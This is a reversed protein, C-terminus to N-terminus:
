RGKSKETKDDIIEYDKGIRFGAGTAANKILKVKNSHNLEIEVEPYKEIDGGLELLNSKQYFKMISVIFSTFVKASDLKESETANNGINIPNGFGWYVQGTSLFSSLGHKNQFLISFVGSGSKISEITGENVTVKSINHKQATEILKKTSEDAKECSYIRTKQNLSFWQGKENELIKYGRDEFYYGIAEKSKPVERALRMLDYCNCATLIGFVQKRFNIPDNILPNSLVYERNQSEMAIKLYYRNIIKKLEISKVIAKM